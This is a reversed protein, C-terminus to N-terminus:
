FLKSLRSRLGKGASRERRSGSGAGYSYYSYYQEHRRSVGNLVVGAIRTHVRRLHALARQAALEETESSRVVVIMADAAAGIVTSDTVPLTPPTDIVIYDYGRRVEAIFEKMASSGLLESPNPPRPGSPIVDLNPAVETRITEQITAKGVLIDTLGPEAILQFTRHVVPRRLDGDVLLVKSTSQALAVALNVTTTSKGEGPGPSTVALFQIPREAAVFTVNTRLSRFAEVAPHDPALNTIAIVPRQAGGSKGAFSAEFPILGLVPVRLVREVDAASKITQDLYELFFAGGLGLLLGVLLGLIIKDRLGTGIRSAPSAGDLIEVYHSITAAQLQAQQYQGLLYSYTDQLIDREIELQAIRTEKGPYTLLIARLTDIETGFADRRQELSLLSARVAAQLAAHGSQIRQDLAGVQPNDLRLGLAGATLTRRAEYLQLLNEIQYLVATNSATGELAALRNLVELGLTDTSESADRLASIQILVDQRNRELGRISEVIAQEEATLNTIQQTEKFTQLERLKEQLERDRQQLEAEIYIIRQQATGLARAKGDQQLEIATQNLVHPVLTRDTSTFSISVANTQSVVSYSIGGRVWAAAEAATVIRFRIGDSPLEPRALRLSFGPGEVVSEPTGTWLEAGSPEDVLVLEGSPGPQQLVYYGVSAASDVAISYFHDGRFLSPDSMELQLQLQPAHVVRLALQQTKLVLAESLVPDTRLALEDIDIDDMRAFVQKRSSVQVTLVSQYQDIADRGSLYAGGAALGALLVVLRWRNLVVKTLDTIHIERVAPHSAQELNGDREAHPRENM